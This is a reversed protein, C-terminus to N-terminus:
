QWLKRHLIAVAKWSCGKFLAREKWSLKMQQQFVELKVCRCVYKKVRWLYGGWDLQMCREWDCVHLQPYFHLVEFSCLFFFSFGWFRPRPCSVSCLQYLFHFCVSDLFFFFVFGFKQIGNWWSRKRHYKSRIIKWTFSIWLCNQESDLLLVQLVLIIIDVVVLWWISIKGRCGLQM